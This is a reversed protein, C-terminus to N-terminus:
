FECSLLAKCECILYWSIQPWFLLAVISSPGWTAEGSVRSAPWWHMFEPDHWAEMEWLAGWILCFLPRQPSRYPSLYTGGGYVMKNGPSLTQGGDGLGCCFPATVWTASNFSLLSHLWMPHTPNFKFFCFGTRCPLLEPRAQLLLAVKMETRFDSARKNAALSALCACM